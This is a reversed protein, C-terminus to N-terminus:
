FAILNFLFLILFIFVINICIGILMLIWAFIETTYARIAYRKALDKATDPLLGFRALDWNIRLKGANWTLRRYMVTFLFGPPLVALIPLFVAIFASISIL